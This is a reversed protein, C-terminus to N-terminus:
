RQGRLGAADMPSYLGLGGDADLVQGTVWDADLLAMVAQAVDEPRGVRGLATRQNAREVFGPLQM